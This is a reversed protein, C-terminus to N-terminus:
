ETPFEDKTLGFYAQIYEVDPDSLDCRFFYFDKNRPDQQIVSPPKVASKDQTEIEPEDGDLEAVKEIVTIFFGSTNQHHPMVRICKTLEGRIDESYYSQFMTERIHSKIEAPVEDFNEYKDFYSDREGKPQQDIM